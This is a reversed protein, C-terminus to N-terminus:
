LPTCFKAPPLRQNRIQQLLDIPCYAVTQSIIHLRKMQIVCLGVVVQGFASGNQCTSITVRFRRSQWERAIRCRIRSTCSMAAPTRSSVRNLASIFHMKGLRCGGALPDKGGFVQRALLENRIGMLEIARARATAKHRWLKAPSVLWLHDKGRMPSRDKLRGNPM